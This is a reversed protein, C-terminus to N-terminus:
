IYCIILLHSFNFNQKLSLVIAEFETLSVSHLGSSPEALAM